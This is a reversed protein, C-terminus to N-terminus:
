RGDGMREELLRLRHHDLQYELDDDAYRSYDGRVIRKPRMSRIQDACWLIEDVIRDPQATAAWDNRVEISLLRSVDATLRVPHQGHFIVQGSAQFHGSNIMSSSAISYEEWTRTELLVMLITRHDPIAAESIEQPTPRRGSAYLQDIRKEVAARYAAMLEAGVEHPAVYRSWQPRILIRIPLCGRDLEMSAFSSGIRTPTASSDAAAFPAEAQPPTSKTVAPSPKPEVAPPVSVPRVANPRKPVLPEEDWYEDPDDYHNFYGGAGM